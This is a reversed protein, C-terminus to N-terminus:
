PTYSTVDHLTATYGVSWVRGRDVPGDEAYSVLVLGAWSRGHNDVLTGKKVPSAYEAETMLADRKAWLLAETTGALRGKVTVVVDGDGQSETGSADNYPSFNIVWLPVLTQARAGQVV